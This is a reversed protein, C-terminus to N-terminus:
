QQACSFGCHMYAGSEVHGPFDCGHQQIARYGGHEASSLPQAKAICWGGADPFGWRSGRDEVVRPSSPIVVSLSLLVMIAAM